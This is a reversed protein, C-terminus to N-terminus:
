LTNDNRDISFTNGARVREAPLHVGVASASCGAEICNFPPAMHLSRTGAFNQEGAHITIARSLTKIELQRACKAILKINRHNCAAPDAVEFMKNVPNQESVGVCHQRGTNEM